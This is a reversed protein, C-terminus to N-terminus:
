SIFHGRYSASVWSLEPAFGGLGQRAVTVPLPLRGALGGHGASLFPWHCSAGGHSATVHRHLRSAGCRSRVVMPRRWQAAANACPGAPLCLASDATFLSAILLMMSLSTIWGLSRVQAVQLQWSSRLAAAFGSV